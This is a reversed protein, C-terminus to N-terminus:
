KWVEKGNRHNDHSFIFRVMKAFSDFSVAGSVDVDHRGNKKCESM